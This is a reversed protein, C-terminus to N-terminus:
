RIREDQRAIGMRVQNMECQGHATKGDAGRFEGGHAQQGIERAVQVDTRWRCAM